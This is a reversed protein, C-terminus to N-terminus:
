LDLPREVQISVDADKVKQDQRNRDPLRLQSQLNCIESKLNSQLNIPPNGRDVSDTLGIQLGIQFRFDAIQLRM